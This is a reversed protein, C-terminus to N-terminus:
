LREERDASESYYFTSSQKSIIGGQNNILTDGEKFGNLINMATDFLDKRHKLEEEKLSQRFSMIYFFIAHACFQLTPIADDVSEPIEVQTKQYVINQAQSIAYDFGPADVDDKVLFSKDGSFSKITEKNILPM